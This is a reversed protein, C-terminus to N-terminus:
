LQVCCLPHSYSFVVATSLVPPSLVTCIVHIIVSFIVAALLVPSSEMPVYCDYVSLYMIQPQHSTYFVFSIIKISITLTLSFASIVKLSWFDDLRMKPLSDKGPNGGFLYHVQLLLQGIYFMINIVIAFCRYFKSMTLKLAHHM